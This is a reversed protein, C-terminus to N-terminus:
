SQTLSTWIFTSTTVKLFGQLGRNTLWFSFTNCKNKIWNYRFTFFQFLKMLLEYKTNTACATALM